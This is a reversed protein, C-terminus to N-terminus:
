RYITEADDKPKDKNYFGGDKMKIGTTLAIMESKDRNYFSDAKLKMGTTFAILKLKM